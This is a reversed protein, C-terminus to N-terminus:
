TKFPTINLQTERRTIPYSFTAKRMMTTMTVTTLVIKVYTNDRQTKSEHLQLLRITRGCAMDPCRCQHSKRQREKENRTTARLRWESFIGCYIQKSPKLGPQGVTLRLKTTYNITDALAEHPGVVTVVHKHIAQKSNQQGQKGQRRAQGIGHSLESPQYPHQQGNM